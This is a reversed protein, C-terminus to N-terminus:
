GAKSATTRAATLRKPSGSTARKAATRRRNARKAARKVCVRKTVLKKSGRVKRKRTVCRKAKVCVRKTVVKSSGRVKRKRSVCRKAKTGKKSAKRRREGTTAASGEAAPASGTLAAGNAGAGFLEVFRRASSPTSGGFITYDANADGYEFYMHYAVDNTRIWEYMREIFYPTDGGGYGDRRNALGWEPFTMPKGHAAAFDRHWRLGNAQTLFENWRAAPDSRHSAWSQDYVDLGVYDVFADGPWASEANLPQGNVYSSGSNPSWDFKFSAGPVSRMTTVIQRWFAAFDAGGNPVAITWRFWNGNFEPGIRLTANGRGGAVLKLALLRFHENYAGAAGQALTGGSDPLMPVTYVVRQAYRTPAWQELFWRVDTLTSWTERAFTDHVASVSRGLRGEFAAVRDPTGAGAYVGLTDAPQARASACLPPLTLTLAM